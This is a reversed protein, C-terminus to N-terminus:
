IWLLDTHKLFIYDPNLSLLENWSNSSRKGDLGWKVAGTKINARKGAKIDDITDGIMLTDTRAANMKWIIYNIGEPDPKLKKVCECGAIFPIYNRLPKLFKEVDSQHRNTLIVVQHKEHLVKVVHKAWPFLDLGRNYVRSFIENPKDWDKIGIKRNNIHWDSSWWNKFQGINRFFDRPNKGEARIVAKYAKLLNEWSAEFLVGDFDFIILMLM